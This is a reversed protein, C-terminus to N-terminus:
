NLTVIEYGAAKELRNMIAEGIGTENFALAYVQQINLDDLHRLAEFLNKAIEWPNQVSGLSLVTKSEFLHKTEETALVGTKASTKKLQDNIYDAVQTINEGKVITVNANPAYHTYKMGPAKPTLNASPSLLAPDMTVNPVIKQLMEQTIGGPRLITPVEGTTDVVTSELGVDCNGGDIIMPIKGSLDEIVRLANTPSPKGSTNASPAALPTHALSILERMIPHAPFRIAVTSLNARVVAPVKESAKFILTLPGPWFADMLKKADESIETVLSNLMQISSIHLILPNDSPRGKATFITSVAKANLGDAALGYVTETPVAVLGGTAIIDAAEQLHQTDTLISTQM